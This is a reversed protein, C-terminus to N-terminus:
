RRGRRRREGLLTSVDVRLAKAIQEITALSPRRHHKATDRSEMNAVHVRHVDIRDALETQTLGRRKRWWKIRPGLETPAM